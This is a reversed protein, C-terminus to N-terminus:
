LWPLMTVMIDYKVPVKGDGNSLPGGHRLEIYLPCNLAELYDPPSDEELSHM